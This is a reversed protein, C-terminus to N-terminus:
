EKWLKGNISVNRVELSKIFQIDNGKEVGRFNCDKLNVNGVHHEEDIGLIRVGYTSKQSNVNEIYIDRIEPYNISISDDLTYRMNVKVVAEDVQGVEINRFHLKEILGGRSRNTKVRIARDLNPSDMTCDEAFINRCGGSVESGIVVGGHGDKMRCRRIIVNQTPKNIRRGDQNRGSKLAICDDGTDFLCDQILVDTCSEPNCGDNNPGHSDVTINEVIVNECLVPHIVWMPSNKLTIGEIHVNKCKYPQIFNPRLTSGAGFQREEVPVQDRNYSLLRDRSSPGEQISGRETSWRGGKWPWWHTEDAGGDLIAKGTIAINEEEFAYILPSYNYLEAGEWRTFVVPLYDAPDNSFRVETGDEFHLHVNSKLHIPGKLFYKGTPVLVRGGGDEHCAAIAKQFAPLDDDETSKTGGYETVSYDAKRFQPAKIRSLIEQAANWPDEASLGTTGSNEQNCSSILTFSAILLYLCFPRLHTIGRMM